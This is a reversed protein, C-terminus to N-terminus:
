TQKACLSMELPSLKHSKLRPGVRSQRVILPRAQSPDCWKQEIVVRRSSKLSFTLISSSLPRSLRQPPATVSATPCPTAGPPTNPRCPSCNPSPTTGDSLDPAGTRRAAIASAPHRRSPKAVLAFRSAAFRRRATHRQKRPAEHDAALVGDIFASVRGLKPKIREPYHHQPPLAGSLAQRVVRRHVGFKAAVEAITGIGFEHERRLQEFLDVKARWDVSAGRDARAVTPQPVPPPGFDMLVVPGFNSLLAM